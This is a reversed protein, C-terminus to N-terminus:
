ASSARGHGFGQESKLVEMRLEVQESGVWFRCQLNQLGQTSIEWADSVRVDVRRQSMNGHLWSLGQLESGRRGEAERQVKSGM